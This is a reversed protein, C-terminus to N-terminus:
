NLTLETKEERWDYSLGRFYAAAGVQRKIIRRAVSGEFHKDELVTESHCKM